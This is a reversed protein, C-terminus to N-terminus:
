GLGSNGCCIRAKVVGVGRRWDWVGEKIGAVARVLTVCQENSLHPYTARTRDYLQPPTENALPQIERASIGAVKTSTM